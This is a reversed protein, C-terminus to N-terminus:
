YISTVHFLAELQYINVLSIFNTICVSLNGIKSIYLDKDLKTFFHYDDADKNYICLISSNPLQDLDEYLIKNAQINIEHKFLKYIGFYIYYCFQGCTSGKLNNYEKFWTKLRFITKDDIYINNKTVYADVDSYQWMIDIKNINNNGLLNLINGM